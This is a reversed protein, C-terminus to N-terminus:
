AEDDDDWDEGAGALQEQVTEEIVERFEAFCPDPDAAYYEVVLRHILENLGNVVKTEWALREKSDNM